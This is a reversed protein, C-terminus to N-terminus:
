EENNCKEEKSNKKSKAIRWLIGTDEACSMQAM